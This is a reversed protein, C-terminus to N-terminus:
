GFIPCIVKRYLLALSVDLGKLGLESTSSFADISQLTSISNVRGHLKTEITHLHTYYEHTYTHIPYM